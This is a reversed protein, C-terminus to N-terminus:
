AVGGKSGGVTRLTIRGRYLRKKITEAKEGFLKAIDAVSFGEMTMWLVDGYIPDLQKIAAKAKKLMDRDCIQDVLTEENESWLPVNGTETLYDVPIVKSKRQLVNLARNRTCIFLFRCRYTEDKSMLKDIQEEAVRLFVDQVIDEAESADNLYKNAFSYLGRRYSNYLETLLKRKEETDVLVLFILM